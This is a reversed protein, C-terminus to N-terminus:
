VFENMTEKLILMLELFSKMDELFSCKFLLAIGASLKLLWQYFTPLSLGPASQTETLLTARFFSPITPCPPAGSAPGTWVKLELSILVGHHSEREFVVVM